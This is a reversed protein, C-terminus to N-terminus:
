DRWLMRSLLVNREGVLIFSDLMALFNRVVNAGSRVTTATIKRPHPNSSQRPYREFGAREANTPKATKPTTAAKTRPM